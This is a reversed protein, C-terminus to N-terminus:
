INAEQQTIESENALHINEGFGLSALTMQAQLLSGLLNKYPNIQGCSIWLNDTKQLTGNSNTKIEGCSIPSSIFLREAKIAEAMEPFARKIQRKMKKLVESINETEEATDKDIFGVWQSWQRNNVDDKPFFRGVCPGIADNTTGDLLFLQDKDTTQNEHYFDVCVSLWSLDKKLKAKSRINLIEDPVIHILEHPGAAFIFNKAHYTKSGNVIVATITENEHEFKTVFSKTTATGKFGEALLQNIQYWPLHLEIEKNSLYYNIQDYFEPAHDGFGVFSKLGSAEYTEPHNPKVSKILKLGLQDELATLAKLGIDSAPFFRLGNDLAQGKLITSKNSGGLQSDAEILLVNETEKSIKNAVVLGTLGSGIVIYDYIHMNM